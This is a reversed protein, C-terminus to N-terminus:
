SWFEGPTRSLIANMGRTPPYRLRRFKPRSHANGIAVEIAEARASAALHEDNGYLAAIVADSIDRRGWMYAFASADMDVMSQQNYCATLDLGHEILLTAIVAFRERPEDKQGGYGVVCGFLPNRVSESVDLECGLSLLYRAAEVQGQRCASVIPTAGDRSDPLNIDAGLDILARVVHMAGDGCARHLHCGMVPTPNNLRDPHKSLLDLIAGADDKRTADWVSRYWLKDSEVNETV